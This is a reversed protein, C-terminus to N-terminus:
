AASEPAAKKSELRAMLVQGVAAIDGRLAEFAPGPELTAEDLYLGRDIEVQIAHFGEAPRAWQQTTYGGAFPRNMVVRRGRAEFGARVVGSYESAASLGHRDGLVIDPKLGGRRREAEAASGPMSHWDVLVAFGFADRAATMLGALAAHYPTHVTEIRSRVEDLSLRGAYLPKGDGGLRPVVGLGAKTRPTERWAGGEVLRGDIEDPDRNVDIFARATRNVLMAVGTAEAGAVLQDVRPDELSRITTTNAQLRSAEGPPFVLGAHAVAFVLPSARQAPIVEFVPGHDDSGKM